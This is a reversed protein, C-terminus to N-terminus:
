VTAPNQAKLVSDLFPDGTSQNPELKTPFAKVEFPAKKVIIPNAKKWAEFAEPSQANLKLLDMAAANSQDIRNENIAAQVRENIEQAKFKEQIPKMATEVAKSVGEAVLKDIEEQRVVPAPPTPTTPVTPTTPPPNPAPPLPPTPTNPAAVTPTAPPPPEQASVINSVFIVAFLALLIGIKLGIFKKM